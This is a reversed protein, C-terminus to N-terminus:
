REPWLRDPTEELLGAIKEAMLKSPRRGTRIIEMVTAPYLDHRRAFDSASRYGRAIMIAKLGINPPRRQQKVAM